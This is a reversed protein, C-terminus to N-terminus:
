DIEGEKKMELLVDKIRQAGEELTCDTLQAGAMNIHGGGGLREMVIQVNLEDISRASIFVKKDYATLVFSAKVGKIDLFTNALKSGIITPDPFGEIHCPAIAYSDMFLHMNRVAEAQIKYERIDTRFMKRIRMIEAGCRRLFAVAEFTRVGPKNMFNNTDVMIGSYLADAEPTRLRVEDGSYQVIEAVMESASSAFPEIYSLTANKIVEDTQRHHDIVVVTAAKEILAPADTRSPRNVDVIVLLVGAGDGVFEEAQNPGVFLDDPYDKNTKFLEILPELASSVSGVVIRAKKGLDTAIRYVGLASGLVDVDPMHHGMIIVRDALEISDRLAHAKVRAKVRTNKEQEVSKGGYYLTNDKTKIVVQDGGRGLALDIASRAYEQRKRFTDVQSGIGISITINTEDSNSANVAKVDDLLSFKDAQMQALYKHQILFIYKDKELKRIIADRDLMYKNINRDVLAVLLAKRVDDANEISEEYNDIYLLGVDLRQDFNEKQVRLIETEDYMYIIYLIDDTKASTLNNNNKTNNKKKKNESDAVNLYKILAHFSVDGAEFHVHKVPDDQTPLAKEDIEPVAETISFDKDSVSTFTNEFKNNCWLCSLDKSIICLPIEMADALKKTAKSFGVAYNVINKTIRRRKAICLLLAFIYYVGVYVSV